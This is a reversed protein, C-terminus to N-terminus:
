AFFITRHLYRRLLQVQTDLKARLLLDKILMGNILGAKSQDLMSFMWQFAAQRAPSLGM